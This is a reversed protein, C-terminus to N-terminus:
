QMPIGRMTLHTSLLTRQQESLESNILFILSFLNDNFPFSQQHRERLADNIEDLVQQTGSPAELGERQYRAELDAIYGPYMPDRTSEIKPSLDMWSDHLRKRMLAYKPVWRTLEIRGRRMKMFQFLRHLFVSQVGKVFHPRLTNLFYDVGSDENKLMERDLMPKYVAAEGFLRNKLAPGRLKRDLLCSDEWDYVLEEFNFWSGRGDFAPPVKSSMLAGHPLEAAGLTAAGLTEHDISQPGYPRPEEDDAYEGHLTWSSTDVDQEWLVAGSGSSTAFWPDWTSDM